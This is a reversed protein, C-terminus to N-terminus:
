FCFIKIVDFNSNNKLDSKPFIKMSFEFDDNKYEIESSKQTLKSVAYNEVEYFGAKIKHVNELSDRIIESHLKGQVGIYIANFKSEDVELCASPDCICIKELIKVLKSHNKSNLPEVQVRFVPEPCNITPYGRLINFDSKKISTSTVLNGTNIEHPFNKIKFIDGKNFM